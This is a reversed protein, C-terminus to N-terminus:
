SWWGRLRTAARGAQQCFKETADISGILQRLALGLKLRELVKMEKM